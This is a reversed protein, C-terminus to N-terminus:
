NGGYFDEKIAKVFENLYELMKDEEIYFIDNWPLKNNIQLWRELNNILQGFRWDPFNEMHIKMLENYFGYLRNVDRM